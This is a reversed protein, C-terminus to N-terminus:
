GRLASDTFLLQTIETLVKLGKLSGRILRTAAIPQCLLQWALPLVQLSGDPSIASTLNPIDDAADDSVVRLIAVSVGIQQFFELATFGEMDVVDAGSIKGLDRKEAASWIVRDSTLGKVFSVHDGIQTHIDATFSRDCEQLNEQFLCKQYLVIDGVTYRQNLSGCLGMMLVRNEQDHPIKELYQRLPQMGVPIALVQPQSSTVRSLGRCVAKYEAGQPVLITHM